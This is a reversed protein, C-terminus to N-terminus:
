LAKIGPLSRGSDYRSEFTYWSHCFASAAQRFLHRDEEIVSFASSSQQILFDAFVPSYNGGTRANFIQTNRYRATLCRGRGIYICYSWRASKAPPFLGSILFGNWKISYCELSKIHPKHLLLAMTQSRRTLYGLKLFLAVFIHYCCYVTPNATNSGLPWLRETERRMESVIICHTYTSHIYTLTTPVRNWFQSDLGQRSTFSVKNM